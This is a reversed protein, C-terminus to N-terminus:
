RRARGVGRGVARGGARGAARGAVRFRGRPGSVSPHGSLYFRWRRAVARRIGIRPGRAIPYHIRPPAASIWLPGRTLDVGDQALSLGLARAVLGPGRAVLLPDRVPPRASGPRPPESGRAMRALGSVPELARILVASPEGRRGTVVNLCHHIGYSVYVYACGPPGFMTRNRPTPGRYAHSAPDRTGGYAEVEVIRGIRRGGARAGPGERVLLRGLLARAVVEPPRAYFRRALPRVPRV